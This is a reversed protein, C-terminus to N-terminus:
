KEYRHWITSSGDVVILENRKKETPYAKVCIQAFTHVCAVIGSVGVSVCVCVNRIYKVFVISNLVIIVAILVPVSENQKNALQHSFPLM